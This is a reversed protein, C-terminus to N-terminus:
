TVERSLVECEVQKRQGQSLTLLVAHFVKWTRIEAEKGLTMMQVGEGMGTVICHLVLACVSSMTLSGRQRGPEPRQVHDRNKVGEPSSRSTM